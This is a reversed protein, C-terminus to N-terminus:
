VRFNILQILVTNTLFLFGTLKSLIDAAEESRTLFKSYESLKKIIEFLLINVVVIIIGTSISYFM